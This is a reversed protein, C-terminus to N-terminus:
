SLLISELHNREKNMNFYSVYTYRYTNLIYIVVQVTRTSRFTHEQEPICKLMWVSDVLM